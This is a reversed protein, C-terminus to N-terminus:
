EEILLLLLKNARSYAQVINSATLYQKIVLDAGKNSLSSSVATISKDNSIQVGMVNM